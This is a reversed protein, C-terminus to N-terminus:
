LRQQLLAAGHVVVRQGAEVGRTVPLWAGPASLDVEIPVRAFRVHGGVQGQDVFVVRYDGLQVLADRPVALARRPDVSIKMDAYMEPRLARDQNDLVCRVRATRTTADLSGSVWDVTGEFVRDKKALVTVAAGAGVRVRALDVEYLDGVAWVKDLDGVTFLEQAAGGGYQGQIEIGPNVNRALVEGDVPSTLTYTQTVADVRGSHFLSAKQRAREVEARARSWNDASREVAAESAAREERLAKQRRYDHEAAIADAQAKNLDSLADGLDPSEITALAAGKRVRQGVQAHIAVVKGTVPSFVHGVRADDLTIRGSTIMTDDVDRDQAASTEISATRAQDPTLWVEEPHSALDSVETAAQSTRCATPALLLGSLLLWCSSVDLKM